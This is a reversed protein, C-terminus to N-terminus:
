QVPAPGQAPPGGLTRTLATVIRDLLAVFADIAFGVLFAITLPTLPVETIGLVSSDKPIWFWGIAIGAFASLGVRVLLKMFTPDPRTGSLYERLHYILAGLAGYLAPLWWLSMIDLRYQIDYLTYAAAYTAGPVVGLGCLIRNKFADDFDLASMFM